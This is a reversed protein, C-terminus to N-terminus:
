TDNGCVGGMGEGAKCKKMAVIMGSIVNHVQKTKLKKFRETNEKSSFCILAQGM